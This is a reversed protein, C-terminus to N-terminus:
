ATATKPQLDAKHLNLAERLIPEMSASAEPDDLAALIALRMRPEWFRRIHDAISDIAEARDPMSDFFEGIRNAMEILNDVDM